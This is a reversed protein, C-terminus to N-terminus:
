FSETGKRAPVLKRPVVASLDLRVGIKKDKPSTSSIRIGKTALLAPENALGALFNVLQEIGCNFAVGVSVEGYDDTLASVRLDEVGRVDFGAAKGVRRVVELLQAQAQAATEARLIGKERSALDAKVHKLIEEKGSVSALERRLKTLHREALPVSDTAPVVAAAPEDNFVSFRLVLIALVGVALTIGTRRDLTGVNV